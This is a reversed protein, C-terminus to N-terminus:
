YDRERLDEWWFQVEGTERCGVREVWRMRSTVQIINPSAVHARVCVQPMYSVLVDSCYLPLPMWYSPLETIRPTDLFNPSHYWFVFLVSSVFLSVKNAKL